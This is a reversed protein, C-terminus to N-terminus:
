DCLNLQYTLSEKCIKCSLKKEKSIFYSQKQELSLTVAKIDQRYIDAIQEHKFRLLIGNCSYIM